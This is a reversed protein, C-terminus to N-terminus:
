PPTACYYTEVIRVKTPVFRCHATVWAVRPDRSPV